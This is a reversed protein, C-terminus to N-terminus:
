KFRWFGNKLWYFTWWLKSHPKKLQQEYDKPTNEQNLEGCELCYGLGEQTIHLEHKATNKSNSNAFQAAIGDGMKKKSGKQDGLTNKSDDTM